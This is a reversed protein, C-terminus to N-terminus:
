GATAARLRWHALLDDGLRRHDILEFQPLGALPNGSTLAGVAGKGGDGIIRGASFLMLDDVLGAQLLAAAIAAGGECLIRTLGAQALAALVAGLDPKGPGPGCAVLRAGARTLAAKARDSAAGHCLWLPGDKASQVLRSSLPLRLGSDVVIRVPQRAVGIDRVTLDPDDALATGVGVMVADSQARLAHVKRRAQPGTIWRSAGTATAIRGDLTTALKLTVQPRSSRVRLFFGANAQQAEAGAVGETVVVGEQRLRSHGQGSVRPDPDTTASVVRAIGSAILADACPQTQGHHSCPELTVYATAGRAAAGAQALAMTEAHPRGGSQTWGRGVVRSGQVIVCGVAPNPWTNGWGRQGLALAHRMHCLDDDASM